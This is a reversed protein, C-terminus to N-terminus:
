SRAERRKARCAGCAEHDPGDEPMPGYVMVLDSSKAFRGCEDCRAPWPPMSHRSERESDLGLFDSFDIRGTM